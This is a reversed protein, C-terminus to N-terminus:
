QPPEGKEIQRLIERARTEDEPHVFYKRTGTGERDVRYHILNEKLSLEIISSGDTPRQSWVEVTADEPSWRKLYEGAKPEGEHSNGVTIPSDANLEFGQDDPAKEVAWGAAQKALKFQSRPVGIKFKWDVGMRGSLGVPQQSVRYEIGASILDRCVEVCDTESDGTWFVRFNDTGDAVVSMPEM